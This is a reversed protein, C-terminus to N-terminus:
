RTREREDRVASDAPQGDEDVVLPRLAELRGSVEAVAHPAVGLDRLAATLHETLRDFAAGSVHLGKHADALDRGAFLNPGGLASTLFAHQHARLRDMDVGVFWPALAPDALVRQYFVAVATRLVAPGGIEEYLMLYVIVQVAAPPLGPGRNAVM